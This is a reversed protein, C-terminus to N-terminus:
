RGFDHVYLNITDDGMKRVAIVENATFNRDALAEVLVANAEIASRVNSANGDSRMLDHGVCIETVWVRFGDDIEAVEAPFVRPLYGLENGCQETSQPNPQPMQQAGAPVSITIAALALAALLSIKLKM